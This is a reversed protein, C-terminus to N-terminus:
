MPDVGLFTAIATADFMHASKQDGDWSSPYTEKVQTDALGANGTFRGDHVDDSKKSKIESHTPTHKRIPPEDPGDQTEQGDIQSQGDVQLTSNIVM